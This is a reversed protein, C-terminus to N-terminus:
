NYSTYFYNKIKSGQDEWKVQKQFFNVKAMAKLDSLIHMVKHHSSEYLVMM